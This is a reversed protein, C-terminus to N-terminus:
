ESVITGISTAFGLRDVWLGDGGFLGTAVQGAPVPASYNYAQTTDCGSCVLPGSTQAQNRDTDLVVGNATAVIVPPACTILIGLIYRPTDTTTTGDIRTLTLGDPCVLDQVKNTPDTSAAPAYPTETRAGLTVAFPVPSQMPDPQLVIPRCIASVQNLWHGFGVSMGTLVAGAPCSEFFMVGGADHGIYSDDLQPTWVVGYGCGGDMFGPSGDCAAATADIGENLLHVKVETECGLCAVCALVPVCAAIWRARGKM